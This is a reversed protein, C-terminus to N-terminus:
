NEFNLFDKFGLVTFGSVSTEFLPHESSSTLCAMAPKASSNRVSNEALNFSIFFDWASSVSFKLSLEIM